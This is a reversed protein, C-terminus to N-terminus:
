ARPAATRNRELWARMETEARALEAARKSVLALLDDLLPHDPGFHLRGGRFDRISDRRVTLAIALRAQWDDANDFITRGIDTVIEAATKESQEPM